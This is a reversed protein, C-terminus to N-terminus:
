TQWTVEASTDPIEPDACASAAIMVGNSTGAISFSPYGLSTAAATTAAADILPGMPGIEIMNMTYPTITDPAAPAGIELSNSEPRTACIRSSRKWPAVTYMTTRRRPNKLFRGNAPTRATVRDPRAASGTSAIGTMM